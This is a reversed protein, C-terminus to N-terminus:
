APESPRRPVSELDPETGVLRALRRASERAILARLAERVLASKETVGTLQQAKALLADDLSLTTRM